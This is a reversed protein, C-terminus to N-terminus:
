RKRKREMKRQRRAERQAAMAALASRRVLWAYVDSVTTSYRKRRKAERLVLTGNTQYIELVINPNVNYPVGSDHVKVVRYPKRKVIRKCTCDSEIYTNHACDGNRPDHWDKVRGYTASERAFQNNM